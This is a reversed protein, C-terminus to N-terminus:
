ERAVVETAKFDALAEGIQDQVQWMERARGPYDNMMVSFALIRDDRTVVYGSLASVGRLSGTKARLRQEAPGSAFRRAITGSTGAVALSAVFEARVEFRRYMASLVRTLQEPTIRNIDNLGSGNGAVFADRGVGIEALFDGIVGCGSAWTGPEGRVEAGLTRLVQEAIFNNSYKNLTSVIEALPASAHTAVPVVGSSPMKQIRVKGNVRVGRLELLARITEGAYLTPHQVPKYVTVGEFDGLGVAGRVTVSTGGDADDTTGVWLRPRTGHGRTLVSASVRISPVDPFVVVRAPGGVRDGPMVRLAFNGYNVALASMPPAYSQDSREQEWGPGEYTADFFTEDVVIHGEIREIGRLAVENVLGFLQENTLTPDGGGKVYLNGRLVGGSLDRDRYMTTRFRYSPGLYWLAAATTVIKQNSAPNFLKTGNREFLTRDDDLSRVHVGVVAEDLSPSRLIDKLRRVLEAEAVPGLGPGLGRASGTPGAAAPGPILIVGAALLTALPARGRRDLSRASSM